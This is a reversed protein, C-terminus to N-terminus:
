GIGCCMIDLLILMQEMRGLLRSTPWQRMQLLGPLICQLTDLAATIMPFPPAMPNNTCGDVKRGVEQQPDQGCLRLSVVDHGAVQSAAPPGATGPEPRAAPASAKGIRSMPLPRWAM